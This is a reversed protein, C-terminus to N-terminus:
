QPYLSGTSAFEEVRNNGRDDVYVKGGSFALTQPDFFQGTGSGAIGAQCTTTCTEAEKKADKVGWGGVLM